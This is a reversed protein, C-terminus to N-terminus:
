VGIQERSRPRILSDGQAVAIGAAWGPARGGAPPVLGSADIGTMVLLWSVVSNSNWMDETPDVVRGWTLLPVDDICNLLTNAEADDQSVTVPGGVAWERDSLEGDAWCRVEYRFLKSRGLFRFVVPGRAIVGRVQIHPDSWEPAMEIIFRGDTTFVELAAHFLQQPERQGRRAQIREWWGSGIQSLRTPAGAGVPLWWLMIGPRHSNDPQHRSVRDM